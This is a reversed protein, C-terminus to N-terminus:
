KYAIITIIFKVPCEGNIRISRFFKLLLPSKEIFLLWGLPIRLNRLLTYKFKPIPLITRFKRFGAVRLQEVLEHYTSENVHGGQAKTKGSASFDKIRTVDAPGFLRNPMIAIFIGQETLSKGVHKMHEIADEKVLHELVNDSIAVEYKKHSKYHIIGKEEFSIQGNTKLEEPIFVDVGTLSKFPLQKAIALLMDGQGCGFDIVSKNKIEKEFLRVYKLKSNHEEEKSQTRQYVHMLKSYFENYIEIRKNQDPENILLQHYHSEVEFGEILQDQPINYLQSYKHIDPYQSSM